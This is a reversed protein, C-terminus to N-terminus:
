KEVYVLKYSLNLDQYSKPLDAATIDEKFEIRIYLRKSTGHELKEDKEPTTGDSYAVKYELYRKQTDTLEENIIEYIKADMNGKNIIDVTFAYFDGPQKLNITYNVGTKTNDITAPSIPKISGREVKINDFEINWNLDDMQKIGNIDIGLNIALAAYAISVLILAVVFILFYIPRATDNYKQEEKKSKIKSM